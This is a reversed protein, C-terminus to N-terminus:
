ICWGLSLIVCVVAKTVGTTSCQSSRSIAVMCENMLGDMSQYMYHYIPRCIISINRGVGRWQILLLFQVKVCFIM